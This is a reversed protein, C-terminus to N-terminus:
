AAQLNQVRAPIDREPDNLDGGTETIKANDIVFRRGLASFTGQPVTITGEATPADPEKADYDFTLHTEVPFEFDEAAVYLHEIDLKAHLRFMASQKAEIEAEVEEPEKGPP